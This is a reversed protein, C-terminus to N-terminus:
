DWLTGNWWSIGQIPRLPTASRGNVLRAGLHDVSELSKALTDRLTGDLYRRRHRILFGMSEPYGPQSDAGIDGNRWAANVHAEKLEQALVHNSIMRM